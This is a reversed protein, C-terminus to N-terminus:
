AAGRNAVVYTTDTAEVRVVQAADVVRLDALQVVTETRTVVNRVTCSTEGVRLFRMIGGEIVGAGPVRYTVIALGDRAHIARANGVRVAYTM